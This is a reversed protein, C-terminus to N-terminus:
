KNLVARKIDNQKVFGTFFAVPLEIFLLAGIIGSGIFIKKHYFIFYFGPVFTGTLPFM